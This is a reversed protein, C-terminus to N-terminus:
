GPVGLGNQESTLSRFTRRDTVCSRGSIGHGDNAGRNRCFFTSGYSALKPACNMEPSIMGAM